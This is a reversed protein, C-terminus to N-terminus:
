ERRANIFTYKSWLALRNRGGKRLTVEVKHPPTRVGRSISVITEGSGVVDGPELFQAQTRLHTM